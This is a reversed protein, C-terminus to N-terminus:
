KEITIQYKNEIFNLYEGLNRFVGGGSGYISQLFSKPIEENEEEETVDTILYIPIDHEFSMFSEGYTGCPKDGKNYVCTIWDSMRVYDIDGPIHILGYKKDILYKGKWILRSFDKFESFRKNKLMEAMQIKAKETNINIKFKELQVPNIPYVLRVLLEKEIDKRKDGGDDGEIPKEMAGILYSVYKFGELKIKSM